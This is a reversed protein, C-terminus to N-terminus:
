DWFAPTYVNFLLWSSPLNKNIRWCKSVLHSLRISFDYINMILTWQGVWRWTGGSKFDVKLNRIKVGLIYLVRGIKNRCIQWHLFDSYFTAERNEALERRQISYYREFAICIINTFQIWNHPFFNFQIYRYISVKHTYQPIEFAAKIHFFVNKM